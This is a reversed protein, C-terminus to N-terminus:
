TYNFLLPGYKNTMSNKSLKFSIHIYFSIYHM